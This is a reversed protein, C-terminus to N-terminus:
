YFKILCSQRSFLMNHYASGDTHHTYKPTAFSCSEDFLQLEYRTHLLLSKHNDKYIITFQDKRSTQILLL